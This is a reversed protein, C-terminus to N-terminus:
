YLVSVNRYSKIATCADSLEKQSLEFMRRIEDNSFGEAMAYLVRKQLASLKTLYKEMKISLTDASVEDGMGVSPINEVIERDLADVSESVHLTKRVDRQTCDRLETMAKKAIVRTAYTYLNSKEPDFNKIAKSMAFGALSEFDDYDLKISEYMSKFKNHWLPNVVRCKISEWNSELLKIM